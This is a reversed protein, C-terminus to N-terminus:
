AGKEDYVPKRGSAAELARKRQERLIQERAIVLADWPLAVGDRVLTAARAEVEDQIVMSEIAFSM